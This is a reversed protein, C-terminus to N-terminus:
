CAFAGKKLNMKRNILKVIRKPDSCLRNYLNKYQKLEKIIELDIQSVMVTYDEQEECVAKLEKGLLYDVTVDLADSLKLFMAMTPTRNGTEYGCISVKSVGIIDGLEEQTYNKNIRAEKVREGIIM